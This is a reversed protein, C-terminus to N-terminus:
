GRQESWPRAMMEALGDDDIEIGLGPATPVGVCGDDGLVFPSRLYGHGILTRGDQRWDNVENHEQV